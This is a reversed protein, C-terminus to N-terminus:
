LRWYLIGEKRADERDYIGKIDILIPKSDIKSLKKYEKFSLDDIFAKHKVAVVIADYPAYSAINKYYNLVMSKKLKM